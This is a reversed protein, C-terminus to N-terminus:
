GTDATTTKLIIDKQQMNPGLSYLWSQQVNCDLPPDHKRYPLIDLCMGLKLSPEEPLSSKIYTQAEESWVEHRLKKVNQQKKMLNLITQSVRSVNGRKLKESMHVTNINVAKAEATTKSTNGPSFDGRATEKKLCMDPFHGKKKCNKCQKGSAPCDIKRIDSNPNM